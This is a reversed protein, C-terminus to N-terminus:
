FVSPPVVHASVAESYTEHTKTELSKFKMSPQDSLVFLSINM